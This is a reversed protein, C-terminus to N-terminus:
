HACVLVHFTGPLIPPRPRPREPTPEPPPGFAATVTFVRGTKEDLASTRAGRETSDTSAVVFRSPSAERIVTLTGEGNSSIALGRTPDFVVGDCGRGIPLAAIACGAEADSVVLTDNGCASFLRRHARDIALGTPEKGPALPWRRSVTLTKADLEVIESKDELNVFIKGRGDVVAFEPRGGLAVEGVVDGTAADLASSNDSGGNFSFARRTTPEYLMLDPNRGTPLPVRRVTDLTALDFILVASERGCSVFGRHLEPALAVAHVGQAPGIRGRTAGHDLDLVDVGNAHTLYLRRAAPDVTLCDWGGDGAVSWRETVHFSPGASAALLCPVFALLAIRRLRM